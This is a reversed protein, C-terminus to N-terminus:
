GEATFRDPFRAALLRRRDPTLMEFSLKETARRRVAAERDLREFTRKLYPDDVLDAFHGTAHFKSM